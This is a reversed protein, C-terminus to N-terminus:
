IQILTKPKSSHKSNTETSTKLIAYFARIFTPIGRAVLQLIILKISIFIRGSTIPIILRINEQAKYKNTM